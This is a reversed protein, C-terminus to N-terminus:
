ELIKAKQIALEDDTLIGAEKLKQLRELQAIKDEMSLEQHPTTPTSTSQSPKGKNEIKARVTEAFIRVLDKTADKLESKNGSAFITIKGFMLGTEYQISTIKDYPFDEVKLGFILGKDVFILRKNTAFLAGIKSNYNGTIMGEVVEDEWLINPLEKIEKRGFLSEIGSVHSLQAKIQELTPM